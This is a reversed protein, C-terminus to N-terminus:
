ADDAGRGDREDDRDGRHRGVARLSDRAGARLHATDVGAALFDVDWDLRARIRESGAAVTGVLTGAAHAADVVRTVAEGLRADDGGGFAGLSLSLDTPGVFM